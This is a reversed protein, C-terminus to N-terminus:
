TLRVIDPQGHLPVARGGRVVDPLEDGLRQQVPQRSSYLNVHVGGQPDPLTDHFDLLAPRGPAILPADPTTLRLGAGDQPDTV